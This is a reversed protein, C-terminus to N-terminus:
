KLRLLYVEKYGTNMSVVYQRDSLFCIKRIGCLLRTKFLKIHAGSLTNWLDINSDWSGTAFYQGNSAYAVSYLTEKHPASESSLMPSWKSSKPYVVESTTLYKNKYTKCLLTDQPMFALASYASMPYTSISSQYLWIFRYGDYLM